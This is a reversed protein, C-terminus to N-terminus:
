RLIWHAYFAAVALGFVTCHILDILTKKIVNKQKRSM